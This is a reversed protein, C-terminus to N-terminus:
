GADFGSYFKAVTTPPPFKFRIPFADLSALPSAPGYKSAEAAAGHPLVQYHRAVDAGPLGAEYAQERLAQAETGVVLRDRLIGVELVEIPVHGGPGEMRLKEEQAIAQARMPGQHVIRMRDDLVSHPDDMLARHSRLRHSLFFAASHLAWAPM